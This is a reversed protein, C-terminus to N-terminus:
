PTGNVILSQMSVAPTRVVRPECSKASRTGTASAVATARSFAAPATGSALVLRGSNARQHSVSLRTKPRVTLGHFASRVAPPEDPPSAAAIEAPSEGSPSPESRPPEIRRGAPWQPTTPSFGVCPRTGRVPWQGSTIRRKM